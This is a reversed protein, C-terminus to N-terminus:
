DMQLFILIRKVTHLQHIKFLGIAPHSLVDSLSHFGRAFFDRPNHTKLRKIFCPTGYFRSGSAFTIFIKNERKYTIAALTGM